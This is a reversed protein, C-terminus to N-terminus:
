RVARKAWPLLTAPANGTVGNDWDRLGTQRMQVDAADFPSDYYGLVEFEDEGWHEPELEKGM